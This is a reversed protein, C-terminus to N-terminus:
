RYLYGLIGVLVALILSDTWMSPGVYAAGSSYAWQPGQPGRTMSPAINELSM